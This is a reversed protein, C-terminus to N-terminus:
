DDLITPPIRIITLTPINMAIYTNKEPAFM